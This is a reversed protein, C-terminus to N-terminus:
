MAERLAQLQAETLIKRLEDDSAHQVATLSGFRRILALRTQPGIGAIEDLSSFVARKRARGERHANAFRHAEDRLRMLLFRAQSDQPFPLPDAGFEGFVEEEQKALALIPISLNQEKLAELAVTRQGKGGDILLLDPRSRLSADEKHEAFIYVMVVGTPMKKKRATREHKEVIVPPPNDIPRFGLDSYYEILGTKAALYVKKTKKQVSLLKRVLFQGLKEGRFKELVWLSKLEKHDGAHKVIRCLGVIDKGHRAILYQTFDIDEDNIEKYYKKHLALIRKHEDKRAKGFVTGRKKWELQEQRVDAKLHRLRRLLVEKLARYDDVEGTRMTRITFSRYQDNKPKGDICVSMSGVTETGGLHSIDYAEIRQPPLKLRLMEQLEELADETNRAATEWRTEMQRVKEQANKEALEVLKNKKGREPTLLQVRHGRSGTLWEELAHKETIEEGTFILPPIDAASVYYQPLFQSLAEAANEASGGLAFSSEAIVKGDREQLLSVHAHGAGLAVGFIDANEGSTDSVIQKEELRQLIKLADRLRAALEFKRDRAAGKMREELRGVAHETKGKLFDIVGDIADRRYEEPTVAGICPACCQKIHYDLCPTPRDRNKIIVSEKESGKEPSSGRGRAGEGSSLPSTHTQLQKAESSAEGEERPPLPRPISSTTPAPEITMRCTRYPFVKRLVGLTEHIDAASTYPGFYKAGDKEVIKRVVDIRPFPDSLTIRVYVYNKDDKMLVNYKPKLQKILNTELILAELESNTVTIDVDTAHKLLAQKWPGLPETNKQLYSRLRNRINKAKGVYLVTKRADLWRYVGPEAPFKAARKRLPALHPNEKAM